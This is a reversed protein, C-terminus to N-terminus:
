KEMLDPKTKVIVGSGILKNEVYMVAIQGIAVGFAPSLLNITAINDEIKVIAKQSKTRYRVKVDCQFEKKSIFMNLQNIKIFSCNLDDKLGVEISNSKHNISTVYHPLQAGKVYFGKRKGITYHMYGKHHGVIQGDKYVEGVNDINVHNKLIDTYENEVFCIENSEKQAAIDKLFEINKAIDKVDDKIYDGLPFILNKLINKNIQSVFYSQDKSTDKAQYIFENDHKLYHGTALYDCNYKDKLEYLKGFKIKKNCIVCPNPTNGAIYENIFYDYVDKKFDSELDEVYYDIDLFQSVKQVNSINKEHYNQILSHLKMYVGVVEFGKQKLLYATVTSDVGGSLGLLVRKKM